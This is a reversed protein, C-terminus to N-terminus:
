AAIRECLWALALPYRYDICSDTGDFLGYEIASVEAARDGLDLDGAAVDRDRRRSRREFEEPSAVARPDVEM